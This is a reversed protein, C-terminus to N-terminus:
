PMSMTAMSSSPAATPEVAPAPGGVPMFGTYQQQPQQQQQQLPQQGATPQELASLAAGVPASSPLIGSHHQAQEAPNLM